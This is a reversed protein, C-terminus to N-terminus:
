KGLITQLAEGSFYRKWLDRPILKMSTPYIRGVGSISFFTNFPFSRQKDLKITHMQYGNVCDAIHQSAKKKIDDPINFTGTRFIADEYMGKVMGKLTVDNGPTKHFTEYDIKLLHLIEQITEKSQQFDNTAKKLKEPFDAYNKPSFENSFPLFQFRIELFKRRKPDKFDEFCFVDYEYKGYGKGIVRNLKIGGPAISLDRKSFPLEDITKLNRDAINTSDIKELM